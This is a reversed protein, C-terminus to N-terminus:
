SLKLLKCGHPPLDHFTLTESRPIHEEGTWLDTVRAAGVPIAATVDVPEDAWNFVALLGDSERWLAQPIDREFLDLPVAAEGRLPLVKALVALREPSLRPLSDSDLMMGGSMAIVTTLTQVEDESLATESDRLMLCDPDNLWLRRHMWWRHLVNRIANLTAPVGLDSRDLGRISEPPRWYPAVDPGIRMGNILGVSPGVPNGCGLIFRGGAARRVTELARRYAQARTVNPDHRIGDIAAAYTFDIKVYEYGWEHVVTRFVGGLWALVEPRTCDLAYCEQGWNIHAVAPRGPKHQVAWEPHEAYLRSRAGMLFPALWLGPKLGRERIRGALWAMGRPFKENPTLWDGIGAQYGDDIQFYELPLEARRAALLELNELIVKESIGQWYYYWSSWGSVVHPWPAAGMERALADGYAPLGQLPHSTIDVALRESSLAAGPAVQVGDAYSAATLTRRGRDLWVQSLQDAASIFGTTVGLGTTPDFVATVLESLFRGRKRPPRTAPGAVPPRVDLDEGDCGLVLTPSWNQWGHKYFRWARPKPGIRLPGGHMVHFAQVNVPRGTANDLHSQLVTFPRNEYLAVDLTLAPEGGGGRRRLRVVRGRGQLVGGVDRALNVLLDLEPCSVGFDDRLSEHSEWMLRGFAEMDGSRLAAAARMVRAEERVVHRARCYLMEGLRGRAAEVDEEAADRLAEVDLVRAAAGCEDRRQNYASAELSRRVASDVVVVTVDAVAFPIPEMGLSRCDILLAHDRRGFVAALQDMAGCGVGVFENEARRALRAIDDKPIRLACAADLAGAVAVELAASSSLGAGPPVDGAIVLDLGRLRYGAGLLVAAVGGVYNRWGGEPARIVEGEVAFSDDEDFDLAFTRLVGDDRRAAAAAVGLDVAMPLVHGGNYDTHEGILNVRGPALSLWQPSRRFRSRFGEVATDALM